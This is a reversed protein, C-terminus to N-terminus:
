LCIFLIVYNNKSICVKGWGLKKKDFIRNPNGHLGHVIRLQEFVLRYCTQKTTRAVQLTRVVTKRFFHFNESVECSLGSYGTPCVCREVVSIKEGDNNEQM